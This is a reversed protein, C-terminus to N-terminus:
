RRQINRRDTRGHRPASVGLVQSIPGREGGAELPPDSRLVIVRTIAWVLGARDGPQQLKRMGEGDTFPGNQGRNRRVLKAWPRIQREDDGV